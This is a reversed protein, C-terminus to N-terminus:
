PDAMEVRSTFGDLSNETKIITMELELIKTQKKKINETEKSLSKIKVNAELIGMVPQESM